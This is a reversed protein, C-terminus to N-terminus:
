LVADSIGVNVVPIYVTGWAVPVLALSALLGAPLGPELTEFLVTGGSYQESCTDTIIKMTGGPVRCQPCGRVRARGAQGFVPQFKVENCHQLAQMVLGPFKVVPPSDFLAQGHQSFLERYCRSLVNMGLVGPVQACMGGPPDRVVLIGCEPVIKGCLEVNLEMYGIHPIALGNAACLQLWQCLKLREQGWPKFDKLFCNETITSVMSGTDILCAVSVGGISAVLQPCGSMLRSMSSGSILM